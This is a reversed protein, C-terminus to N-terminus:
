PKADNLEVWYGDPDQLYVQMVGDPRKTVSHPEHKSNYYPISLGDLRKTLAPLSPVRMAIHVDIDTQLNTRGGAILHLQQAPGMGLRVHRDDKFTDAIRKLGLNEYFSASRTLDSVHLAVHDFAPSSSPADTKTYTM